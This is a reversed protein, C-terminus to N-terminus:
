GGGVLTVVELRDGRELARDWQGRPLLQRNLEVAVRDDQLRLTERVLARVTTGPRVDRREGNLEIELDSGLYTMTASM